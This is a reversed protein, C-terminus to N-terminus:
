RLMEVCDGELSGVQPSDCGLGGSFHPHVQVLGIQLRRSRRSPLAPDLRQLGQQHLLPDDIWLDDVLHDDVVLGVHSGEVAGLHDGTRPVIRLVEPSQEGISCASDRFEAEPTGFTVHDNGYRVRGRNVVHHHASQTRAIGHGTSPSGGDQYLDDAYRDRITAWGRASSASIPSSSGGSTSM